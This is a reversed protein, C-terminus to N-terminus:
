HSALSLKFMEQALWDPQIRFLLDLMAPPIVTSTPMAQPMKQIFSLLRNRSLDNAKDNHIGPIHEAVLTCEYHAEYFYLCQLLHM